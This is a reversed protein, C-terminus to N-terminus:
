QHKLEGPIALYSVFSADDESLSEFICYTNKPVLVVFKAKENHLPNGLLVEKHLGADTLM